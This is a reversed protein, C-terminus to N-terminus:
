TLLRTTFIKTLAMRILKHILYSSGVELINYIFIYLEEWKWLLINLLKLNTDGEVNVIPRIMDTNCHKVNFSTLLQFYFLASLNITFLCDNNEM